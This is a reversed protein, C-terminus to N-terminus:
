PKQYVIKGKIIVFKILDAHCGFQYIVHEWRPAEIIVFDAHKSIEISGHTSSKNLSAAANLTSATLAEAMSMGFYICALNMILPMSYSFANPNFDSGLAVAVNANIFKRAPPPNIRLTHVTSPLLVAVTNNKSMSNIGDDSVEELHSIALAGIEAGMEASKMPHLEDGHFNIALGIESGAKLINYTQKVDFIGKDCFVDINDVEIENKSMLEKIAPIQDNIISDTAEDSTKGRPIAHAGCYTISIEIPLSRKAKTLIKLLRIEEEKELGYGSKCEVLTTGARLMKMIRKELSTYLEDDSANKTHEVTYFIGGGAEHIEMYSKGELKMAFEHVRDGTWVPHTHADVFGPLVCMESADIVQEFNNDKYRKFIDKNLGIDAVVGNENVVVAVGNPHELVELKRQELGRLMLKNSNTVTVIQKASHILLLM